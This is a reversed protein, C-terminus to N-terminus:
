YATLHCPPRGRAPPGLLTPVLGNATMSYNVIYSGDHLQQLIADPRETLDVHFGVHYVVEDAKEPCNSVGGRIPIVTVLNIFSQGGKRYNIITTQCEKDATLVKKLHAVVDSPTVFRGEEGKQVNGDPLQLFRCNRGLVEHEEYGTLHYFSPSAYIIPCDHRRVDAVTFSCSSDVPGLMINPHPRSVVGSLISLVDFASSSYVPLGLHSPPNAAPNFNLIGAASSTPARTPPPPPAAPPPSLHSSYNVQHYPVSHPVAYSNNCCSGSQATTSRSSEEVSVGSHNRSVSSHFLAFGNKAFWSSAFSGPSDLFGAPLIEAGGGPALIPPGNYMFQPIQFQIDNSCADVSYHGDTYDYPNSYQQSPQQEDDARLYREFPM